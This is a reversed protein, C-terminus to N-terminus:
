EKLAAVPDVAAARRAPVFAAALGVALLLAASSALTLPDSPETGHLLAEIWRSALTTALLGLAIGVGLIGAAGQLVHRYLDSESAGVAKRIGLERTHTAVAFSLVGYLGVAALAIAIGSFLVLLTSLLRERKLSDSIRSAKTRVDYVPIRPDLDRVAETVRSAIAEARGPGSAVGYLTRSAYAEYPFFVTMRPETALGYHRVNEVVGLIRAREEPRRAVWKGVAEELRWFREALARNVVVELPEGDDASTFTRGALLPIGMAEFYGPTVGHVDAVVRNREPDQQDQVLFDTWAYGRTLPLMSIGGAHFVGPSSRLRDFLLEFFRDREGRERYREGVLSVRFTVAEETRFGPPTSRLEFFMRLLLGAAAALVLSLAVQAIVFYRSGGRGLSRARAASAGEQLAEAPSVDSSRAVPVLGFVLSSALSLAMAFAVIRGDVAIESLRPLDPPSAQRLSETAAVALLLGLAGAALGLLLNPITAERVLQTRSAGIAARLALERRRSAARALVLNAVNACAILLLTATAGLLLSLPVRVPGVVQALLSVADIRYEGGPELGAGLSQPDKVVAEAVRLLEGELESRTTSGRLRGIVNYNESGHTTIGPDEIPLSIVLDFVPVTHLTPLLDQDLPLSPLVGLVELREGDVEITRGLVSPDGRFRRQYLSESLLVKVAAGPLDDEATFRRGLAPEIGFLDFFSSAVNLAGLREPEAGDGSLTVEGGFVMALEEFGRAKERLDFYQAPSLWDQEVGVGPARQWLMFLRDPDPFPLPRLLVGDVVSAIAVTAGIGLAMTLVVAASHAKSRFIWRISYAIERLM